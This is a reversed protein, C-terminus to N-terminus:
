VATGATGDFNETTDVAMTDTVYATKGDPSFVIGNPMKVADTM